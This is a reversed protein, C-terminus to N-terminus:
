ISGMTGYKIGGTGNIMTAFIIVVNESDISATCAKASFYQLITSITGPIAACHASRIFEWHAPPFPDRQRLEANGLDLGLEIGASTRRSQVSEGDGYVSLVADVSHSEAHMRVLSRRGLGNEGLCGKKIPTQYSARATM